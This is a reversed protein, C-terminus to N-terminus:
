QLVGPFRTRVIWDGVRREGRAAERVSRDPAFELDIYYSDLLHTTLSYDGRRPGHVGSTASYVLMPGCPLLRVGDDRRALAPLSADLEELGLPARGRTREFERVADAVRTAGAVCDDVAGQFALGTIAFGVGVVALHVVLAGPVEIWRVRIGRLLCVASFAVLFGTWGLTSFFAPLAYENDVFEGARYDNAVRLAPALAGFLVFLAACFWLVRAASRARREENAPSGAPENM